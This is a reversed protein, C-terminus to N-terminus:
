GSRRNNEWWRPNMFVTVRKYRKVVHEPSTRESRGDAVIRCFPCDYGEPAHSVKM